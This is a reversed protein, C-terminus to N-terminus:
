GAPSGTDNYNVYRVQLECPHVLRNYFTGGQMHFGGRQKLHEYLIYADPQPLRNSSCSGWPINPDHFLIADVDYTLLYGRSYLAPEWDPHESRFKAIYDRTITLNTDPGLTVEFVVNVQDLSNSVSVKQYHANAPGSQGNLNVNSDAIIRDIVYFSWYDQATTEAAVPVCLMGLLLLGPICLSIIKMM